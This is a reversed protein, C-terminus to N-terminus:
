CGDCCFVLCYNSKAVQWSGALIVTYLPAGEGPGHSALLGRYRNRGDGGDGWDEEGIKLLMLVLVRVLSAVCVVVSM